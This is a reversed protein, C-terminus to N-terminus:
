EQRTKEFLLRDIQIGERLITLLGPGFSGAKIEGWLHPPNSKSTWHFLPITSYQFMPYLFRDAAPPNIESQGLKDFFSRIRRFGNNWEELPPDAVNWYEMMGRRKCEAYGPQESM